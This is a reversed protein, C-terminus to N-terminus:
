SLAKLAGADRRRALDIDYPDAPDEIYHLAIIRGKGELLERRTIDIFVAPDTGAGLAYPVQRVGALDFEVPKPSKGALALRKM